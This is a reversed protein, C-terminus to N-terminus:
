GCCGAVNCRTQTCACACMHKCAEVPEWSALTTCARSLRCACTYVTCRVLEGGRGRCHQYGKTGRVQKLEQLVAPAALVGAASSLQLQQQRSSSSGGERAAAQQRATAALLLWLGHGGIQRLLLMDSSLLQMCHAVQRQASSSSALPAAFMLLMNSLVAYRWPM